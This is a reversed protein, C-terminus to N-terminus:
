VRNSKRAHTIQCVHVQLRYTYWATIETAPLGNKQSPFNWNSSETLIECRFCTGSRDYLLATKHCLTVSNHSQIILLVPTRFTPNLPMYSFPPPHCLHPFTPSAPSQMPSPPRHDLIVQCEWLPAKKLITEPPFWPLSGTRPLAASFCQWKDRIVSQTCCCKGEHSSLTSQTWCSTTNVLFPYCLATRSSYAPPKHRSSTGLPINWSLLYSLVLVDVPRSILTINNTAAPLVFKQELNVGIPCRKRISRALIPWQTVELVEIAAKMSPVTNFFLLITLM